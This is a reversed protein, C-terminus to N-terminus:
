TVVAEKAPTSSKKSVVIAVVGLVLGLGVGGVIFIDRDIGLIKQAGGGTSQAQIQQEVAKKEADAQAQAAAAQKEQIEKQTKAQMKAISQQMYTSYTAAGAQIGASILTAIADIQGLTRSGRLSIMM